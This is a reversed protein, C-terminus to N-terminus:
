KKKFSILKHLGAEYVQQGGIMKGAMSVAMGNRFEFILSPGGGFDKGMDGELGIYGKVWPQKLAKNGNKITAGLLDLASKMGVLQRQQIGKISDLQFIQRAQNFIAANCNNTADTYMGKLNDYRDALSDCNALQSATDKLGKAKRYLAVYKDARLQEQKVASDAKEKKETLERIEAKDADIEQQMGEVSLMAELYSNSIIEKVTLASDREKIAKTTEANAKCKGFLLWCAIVTIAILFLNKITSITM